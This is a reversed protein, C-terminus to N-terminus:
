LDGGFISLCTPMGVPAARPIRGDSELWEQVDREQLHSAKLYLSGTKQAGEDETLKAEPGNKTAHEYEEMSTGRDNTEPSSTSM